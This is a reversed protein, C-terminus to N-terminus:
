GHSHEFSPYNSRNISACPCIKVCKRSGRNNDMPISFSLEDIFLSLDGYINYVCKFHITCPLLRSMEAEHFGLSQWYLCM